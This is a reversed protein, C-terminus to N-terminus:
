SLFLELLVDGRALRISRGLKSDVTVASCHASNLTLQPHGVVLDDIIDDDYLM